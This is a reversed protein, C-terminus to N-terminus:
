RQNEDTNKSLFYGAIAALFSFIGIAIPTIISTSPRQVTTLNPAAEATNQKLLEQQQKYEERANWAAIRLADLHFIEDFKELPKFFVRNEDTTANRNDDRYKIMLDVLGGSKTKKDVEILENKVEVITEEREQETMNGFKDALAAGCYALLASKGAWEIDTANSKEPPIEKLGEKILNVIDKPSLKNLQDQFKQPEDFIDGLKINYQKAGYFGQEGIQGLEHATRILKAMLEETLEVRSEQM